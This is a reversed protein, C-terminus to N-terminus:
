RIKKLKHDEQFIQVTTAINIPFGNVPFVKSLTGRRELNKSNM